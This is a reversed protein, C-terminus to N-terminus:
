PNCVRCPEYGGEVAEERGVKSLNKRTGLTRCTPLHFSTSGVVVIDSDSQGNPSVVAGATMKRISAILDQMQEEQRAQGRRIVRIVMSATGFFVFALGTLGGSILYPMQAEVAGIGAAGNWALGILAFGLIVSIIPMYEAYRALRNM